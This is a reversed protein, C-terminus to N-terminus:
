KISGLYSELILSAAVADITKKRKKGFKGADTLVRQASITTMREDWLKVEIDGSVSNNEPETDAAKDGTCLTKLLAALSESKEARQGISGDMNKPLGVVICSVDRKKAEEVIQTAVDNEKRSHIVWADGVLTSSSDSVAVGTRADGYDVAM